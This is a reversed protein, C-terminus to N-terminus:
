RYFSFVLCASRQFGKWGWSHTIREKVVCERGVIVRWKGEKGMEVEAAM